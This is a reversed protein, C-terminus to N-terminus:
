DDKLGFLGDHEMWAAVKEVSGHCEPPLYDHALNEWGAWSARNMADARQYAEDLRGQLFALLFDGPRVGREVYRTLGGHMHNPIHLTLGDQLRQCIEARNM